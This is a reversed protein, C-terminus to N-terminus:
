TSRRGAASGSRSRQGPLPAGPGAAPRTTWMRWLLWAGFALSALMIGSALVRLAIEIAGDLRLIGLEGLLYHWDHKAPGGGPTVLPLRMARADGVYHAVEYLNTALWGGAFSLGFWERQRLFIPVTALPALCQLITGGAAELFTGFPRFVIHGIEHIGLNIPGFWSRYGGDLLHRAFLWVLVALVPLRLLASRGEAWTAADRLRRAIRGTPPPGAHAPLSRPSPTVTTRASPPAARHLREACSPCVREGGVAVLDSEERGEMCISCLTRTTPGPSMSVEEGGEEEAM